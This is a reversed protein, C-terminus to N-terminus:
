TRRQSYFFVVQVSSSNFLSFSQAQVHSIKQYFPGLLFSFLLEARLFHQAALGRQHPRRLRATLKM